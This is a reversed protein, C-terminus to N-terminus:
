RKLAGSPSCAGITAEAGIMQILQRRRAMLEGLLRPTPPPRLPPNQRPSTPSSLPMWADTQGATRNARHLRIQRPNVIALPGAAALGAAVIAQFGGTAQLVVTTAVASWDSSWNRM